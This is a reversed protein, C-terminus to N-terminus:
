DEAVGRERWRDPPIVGRYAEAACNIIHLIHDFDDPVIDRLAVNSANTPQTTM